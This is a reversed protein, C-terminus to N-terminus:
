HQLDYDRLTADFQLPAAAYILVDSISEASALSMELTVSSQTKNIPLV